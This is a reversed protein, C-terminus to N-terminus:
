HTLAQPGVFSEVIGRAPSRRLAIVESAEASSAVWPSTASLVWQVRPLARKLAPVLHSLVIPDQHLDVEDITVIGECELPDRFPYAAWLARVPLAVFALLHRVRTPLGDFTCTRQGDTFLPELTL